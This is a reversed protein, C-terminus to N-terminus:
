KKLLSNSQKRRRTHAMTMGLTFLAIFGSIWNIPIGQTQTIKSNLLILELLEQEEEGMISQEYYEYVRMKYLHGWSINYSVEFSKVRELTDAGVPSEESEYSEWKLNFLNDTISVEFLGSENNFC